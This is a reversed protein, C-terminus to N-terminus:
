ITTLGLERAKELPIIQGKRYIRKTITQDATLQQKVFVDEMVVFTQKEDLSKFMGLGWLREPPTHGEPTCNGNPDGCVICPEGTARLIEIDGFIYEPM